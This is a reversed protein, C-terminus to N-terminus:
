AKQGYDRVQVWLDSANMAVGVMVFRDGAGLTSPDSTLGGSDGLYYPAGATAGSLVGLAIGSTIIKATGNGAVSAAAVGVVWGDKDSGGSNKAQSKKAVNSASIYVPEGATLGSSDATCSWIALNNLTILSSANGASSSVGGVLVNANAADFNPNVLSGAITFGSPLGLVKLGSADKDLTSGSLTVSLGGSLSLAPTSSNLLVALKSSSFQLGPNSSALDVSVQTGSIAIGNGATVAGAGSFQTFAVSTIGLTGGQDVTCVWGTDHNVTGEEIFTFAGPLESWADMDLARSWSGSAVVYIGNASASTQDKVLVRDGAVVAVGDITQTGSLTIVSVTAVRCSPKVDLGQAVNDVYAKTAADQAASPDVLSSIRGSSSDILINGVLVNGSAVTLSSAAINGASVNGVLSSTGSVSLSSASISSATM